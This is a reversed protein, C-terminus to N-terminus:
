AGAKANLRELEIAASVRNEVREVLVLAPVHFVYAPTALEGVHGCLVDLADEAFGRRLEEGEARGSRLALEGSAGRKRESRSSLKRAATAAASGSFIMAVCRGACGRPRVKTAAAPLAAAAMAAATSRSQFPSSLPM